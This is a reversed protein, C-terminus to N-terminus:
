PKPAGPLVPSSRALLELLEPMRTPPKDCGQLRFNWVLASPSIRGPDSSHHCVRGVACIGHFAPRQEGIAIFGLTVLGVSCLSYLAHGLGEKSCTKRCGDVRCGSVVRHGFRWIDYQKCPFGCFLVLIRVFVLAKPALARFRLSRLRSVLNKARFASM